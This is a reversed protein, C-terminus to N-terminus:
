LDLREVISEVSDSIDAIREALIKLRAALSVLNETTNETQAVMIRAEEPHLVRELKGPLRETVALLREIEKELADVRDSVQGQKQITGLEIM